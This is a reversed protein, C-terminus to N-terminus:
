SSAQEKLLREAVAVYEDMAAEKAMGKRTAWTDYKAKGRLDLLGPRKGTVDGVTAQKYLGYLELLVNPPQDPLTKIDELAKEFEPQAM